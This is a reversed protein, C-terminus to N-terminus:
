SIEQPIKRFNGLLIEPFKGVKLKSYSIEHNKTSKERKESDNQSFATLIWCSKDM